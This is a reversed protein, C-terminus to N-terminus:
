MTVQQVQDVQFLERGQLVELGSHLHLLYDMLEERLRVRREAGAFSVAQRALHQVLHESQTRQLRQQLVRGDVVDQDVGVLLDVDLAGAHQFPGVNDELVFGVETVDDVLDNGVHASAHVFRRRHAVCAQGVARADVDDNRRQRDISRNEGNATEALNRQTGVSQKGIAGHGRGDELDNFPATRALSLM